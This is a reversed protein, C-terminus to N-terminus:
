PLEVQKDIALQRYEKFPMWLYDDGILIRRRLRQFSVHGDAFALNFSLKTKHWEPWSVSGQAVVQWGYDGFHITEAPRDILTRRPQLYPSNLKNLQSNVSRTPDFFNARLTPPRMLYRNSEYSTGRAAFFTTTINHQSDGDDMPCRFLEADTVTIAPLGVFSNLPKAIRQGDPVLADGFAADEGQRGGYNLSAKLFDQADIPYAGDHADLYLDFGAGISRLNAACVVRKAQRRAIGLAPLLISVLVAIIAVVVLLEILTFGRKQNCHLAAM